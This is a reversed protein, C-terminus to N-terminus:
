NENNKNWIRFTTAITVIFLALGLNVITLDRVATLVDWAADILM